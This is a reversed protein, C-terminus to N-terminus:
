IIQIKEDVQKQKIRKYINTVVFLQSIEKPHYISQLNPPLLFNTTKSSLPIGPVIRTKLDGCTKFGSTTHKNKLNTPDQPLQDLGYVCEVMNLYWLFYVVNTGGTSLHVQLLFYLILRFIATSQSSSIPTIIKVDDAIKCISSVNFNSNGYRFKCVSPSHRLIM